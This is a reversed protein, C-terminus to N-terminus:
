EIYGAALKALLWNTVLASFRDICGVYDLLCDGLDRGSLYQSTRGYSGEPLHGRRQVFSVDTEGIEFGAERSLFAFGSAVRRAGLNEM